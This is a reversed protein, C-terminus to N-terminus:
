RGSQARNRYRLQWHRIHGQADQARKRACGRSAIAIVPREDSLALRMRPGSDRVPM